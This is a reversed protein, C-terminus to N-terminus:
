VRASGSAQRPRHAPDQRRLLPDAVSRHHRLQGAGRAARRGAPLLRRAGEPLVPRQDRRRDPRVDPRKELGRRVGGPRRGDDRARDHHGRSSRRGSRGPVRVAHEVPHQLGEQPESVTSGFATAVDKRTLVKCPNKTAAASRHAARRRVAHSALAVVGVVIGRAATLRDATRDDPAPIWVARSALRARPGPERVHHEGRRESRRKTAGLGHHPPPHRVTTGDRTPAAGSSELSPPLPSYGMYAYEPHYAPAGHEHSTSARSSRPRPSGCCPRAGQDRVDPAPGRGRHAVIIVASGKIQAILQNANGGYLVGKVDGYNASPSSGSASRAGSAAPATCRSRGAPTTSGSGSPSTWRDPDHDIGAIAGIALSGTPSVWYCPCTIAVLGPSCATSASASTGSRPGPTCGPWRSSRM